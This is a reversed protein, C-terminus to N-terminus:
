QGFNRYKDYSRAAGSQGAGFKAKHKMFDMFSTGKPIQIGEVEGDVRSPGATGFSEIWQARTREMNAVEQALNARRELYDIILGPDDTTSPMPKRLQAMEKESSPGKLQQLRNLLDDNLADETERRIRGEVTDRGAWNKLTENVVSLVGGQLKAGASFNEKWRASLGKLKAAVADQQDATQYMPMTIKSIEPSIGYKSQQAATANKARIDARQNELGLEQSAMDYVAKRPGEEYQLRKIEIDLRNAEAKNPAEQRSQQLDFLKREYDVMKTGADLGRDAAAAPANLAELIGKIKEPGVARAITTGM